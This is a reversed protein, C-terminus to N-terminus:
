KWQDARPLFPDIAELKTGDVTAAFRIGLEAIADAAASLQQRNNLKLEIGEFAKLVEDLIPQHVKSQAAALRKAARAARGASTLGYTEKVTAEATARLSFELDAIMGSLFMVRTREKASPANTQGNSRVFNHRV